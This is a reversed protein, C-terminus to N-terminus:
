NIQKTFAIAELIAKKRKTLEELYTYREFIERLRVEDLSGTREKRYRAIFPITGGGAM